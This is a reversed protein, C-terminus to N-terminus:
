IKKSQRSTGIWEGMEVQTEIGRATNKLFEERFTVRDKQVLLLITSGGFEFRGKESGKKVRRPGHYNAIRGVMMAGVEMQLLTGFGETKLLCYERTNEHYVPVSEVAIPNVTHLIGPIRINESKEGDAPYSYRHYDDVCLRFVCAYGGEYRKALSPNKLIRDVTYVSGKIAFEATEDLPYISLKGDSPSVLHSPDCDIMRETPLIERTFFDNFSRYPRKVYPRMDMQNKEIFPRILFRSARRDLFAGAAKSLGPQTLVKLLVRGYFSTYLKQLLRDQGSDEVRITGDKGMCRHVGLSPERKMKKM